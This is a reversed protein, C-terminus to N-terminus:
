LEILKNDSLDLTTLNTLQSISEPLEILKNDSLDLTTLNTLKTISEPLTTLTNGSLDLEKLKNYKAIQIKEQVSQQVQNQKNIKPSTM